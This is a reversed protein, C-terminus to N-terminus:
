EFSYRSPPSGIFRSFWFLLKILKLEMLLWLSEVQSGCLFETATLAICLEM